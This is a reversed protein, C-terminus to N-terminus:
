WGSQHFQNNITQPLINTYAECITRRIAPQRTTTTSIPKPLFKINLRKRQHKNRERRGSRKKEDKRKLYNRPLIVQSVVTHSSCDKIEFKTAVQILHIGSDYNTSPRNNRFSSLVWSYHTSGCLKLRRWTQTLVQSPYTLIKQMLKSYNPNFFDLNERTSSKNFKLNLVLKWKVNLKKLM